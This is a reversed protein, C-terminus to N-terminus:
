YLHEVGPVKHSQQFFQNPLQFHETQLKQLPGRVPLRHPPHQRITTM